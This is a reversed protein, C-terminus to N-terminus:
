LITEFDQAYFNKAEGASDEILIFDGKNKEFTYFKGLSEKRNLDGHASIHLIPSKQSESLCKVFNNQTARRIDVNFSNERKLKM